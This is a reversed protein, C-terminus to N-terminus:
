NRQENISDRVLWRGKDVYTSSRKVVVEVWGDCSGEKNGRVMGRWGGGGGEIWRRYVKM